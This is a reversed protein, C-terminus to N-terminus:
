DIFDLFIELGAVMWIDFSSLASFFLDLLLEILGEIHMMLDEAPVLDL